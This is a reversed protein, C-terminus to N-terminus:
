QRWLAIGQKEVAMSIFFSQLETCKVRYNSAFSRVIQTVEYRSKVCVVFRETM